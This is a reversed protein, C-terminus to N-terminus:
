ILYEPSIMSFFIATKARNLRATDIQAQNTGNSAPITVASVGAVVRAQLTSSMQGYFLLLNMRDVLAQPNDTLAVEPAYTSRVDRGSGNPPTSGIGNNIWDQMVNIYSAATVEDVVQFEPAVLSRSGLQTTAPPTFGPRWFNFVSPSTLPSQNLSTNASTSTILFNGTQSTVEFARAWNALRIVPERLKGFSTSGAASMDRAEADTLIARVVAGMDGRVGSG